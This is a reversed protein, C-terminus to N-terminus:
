MIQCGLGSSLKSRKVDRYRGKTSILEEKLITKDEDHIKNPDIETLVEAAARYGAQIAGSLYGCWHTATETGAFYVLDAHPKRLYHFNHMHGPPLISVPAGGVFPEDMWNKEFFQTPTNAKPGFYRVLQAIVAM